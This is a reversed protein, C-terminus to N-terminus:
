LNKTKALNWQFFDNCIEITDALFVSAFKQDDDSELQKAKDILEILQVQFFDFLENNM